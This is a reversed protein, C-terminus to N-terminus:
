EGAHAALLQAIDLKKMKLMAGMARNAKAPNPDSVLDPMVAPVIQWSLGYKDKLWGCQQAKEDGGAALTNWYHDIEEQTECIVQMSIAESFKFHPGGNLATFPRGELEFLVTMVTGPTQGHLEKGEEPYRTVRVIRSKPFISVYFKAAEEARGDFWFCPAIRQLTPM